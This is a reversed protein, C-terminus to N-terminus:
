TTEQLASSLVASVRGTSPDRPEGALLEKLSQRYALANAKALGMCGGKSCSFVRGSRLNNLTIQKQRGCSCRGEVWYESTASDQNVSQITLMGVQRGQWYNSINVLRAQKRKVLAQRTVERFGEQLVDPSVGYEAAVQDIPLLSLLKQEIAQRDAASLRDLKKVKPQVPLGYSNRVKRIYERSCNLLRAIEVDQKGQQYLRLFETKDVPM